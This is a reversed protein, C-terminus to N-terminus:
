LDGELKEHCQFLMVLVLRLNYVHELCGSSGGNIFAEVYIEVWMLSAKPKLCLVNIQDNDRGSEKAFTNFNQRLGCMVGLTLGKM